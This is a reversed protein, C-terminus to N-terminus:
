PPAAPDDFILTLTSHYAVSRSVDPAPSPPETDGTWVKVAVYAYGDQAAPEARFTVAQGARLSRYGPAAIASFHVWCGGPVGPAYIVGWGEDNDYERVTGMESM